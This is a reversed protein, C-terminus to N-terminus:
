GIVVAQWERIADIPWVLMIINLTLNDRIFYLTFLELGVILCLSVAVPLRRALLFGLTCFAVDSVSNIISDGYYDLAITATRYRNIIFPSNELIEWSVEFAMAGILRLSMPWRPALKKLVWYFIFGHILHSFSYWDSIQQSNEPSRVVGQWLRVYGCKCIPVRGMAYLVAVQAAIVAAAMLTYARGPIREYWKM